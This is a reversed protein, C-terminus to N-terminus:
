QGLAMPDDDHEQDTKSNDAWRATSTSSSVSQIM